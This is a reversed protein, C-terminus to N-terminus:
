GNQLARSVEKIGTFVASVRTLIAYCQTQSIEKLNHMYENRVFKFVTRVEIRFTKIQASLFHGSEIAKVFYEDVLRAGFSNSGVSLRMATELVICVERVATDYHRALIAPRARRMLEEDIGDRQNALLDELAKLGADTLTLGDEAVMIRMVEEDEFEDPDPVPVPALTGDPREWYLGALEAARRKAWERYPIVSAGTAYGRAVLEGVDEHWLAVHFNSESYPDGKKPKDGVIFLFCQDIDSLLSFKTAQPFQGLRVLAYESGHEVAYAPWDANILLVGRSTWDLYGPYDFLSM